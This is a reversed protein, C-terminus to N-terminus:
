KLDFHKVTNTLKYHDIILFEIDEALEQEFFSHKGAKKSKKLKIFKLM